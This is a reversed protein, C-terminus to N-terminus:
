TKGRQAVLHSIRMDTGILRFTMMRLQGHIRGFGQGIEQDVRQIILLAQTADADDECACWGLCGDAPGGPV